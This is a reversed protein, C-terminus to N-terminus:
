IRRRARLRKDVIVMAACILIAGFWVTVFAVTLLTNGFLDSVSVLIPHCSAVVIWFLIILFARM